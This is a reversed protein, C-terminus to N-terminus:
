KPNYEGVKYLAFSLDDIGKVKGEFYDYKVGHDEVTLILNFATDSSSKLFLKKKNEFKYSFKAKEIEKATKFDFDHSGNDPLTIGTGDGYFTLTFSLYNLVSKEREYNAVDIRSSKRPDVYINKRSKIRDFKFQGKLLSESTIVTTENKNNQDNSSGCSLLTITALIITYYNKM